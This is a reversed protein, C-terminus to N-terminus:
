SGLKDVTRQRKTAQLQLTLITTSLCVSVCVCLCVCLVVVAVMATCARRTNILERRAHVALTITSPRNSQRRSNPKHTIGIAETSCPCSFYHQFKASVVANSLYPSVVLSFALICLSCQSVEVLNLGNLGGHVFQTCLPYTDLDLAARFVSVIVCSALRHASLYTHVTSAM